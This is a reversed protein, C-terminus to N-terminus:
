KSQDGYAYSYAGVQLDIVGATNMNTVISPYYKMKQALTSANALVTNGDNMYIKLREDDTSTPSYTVQSIGQRITASLQGVQKATETLIGEHKAFGAYTIFNTLNNSIKQYKGTSLLLEQHGNHTVIGIVPNEVVHVKVSRPGVLSVRISKVQLNNQQAQKSVAAQDFVLRWIFAGAKAGSAAEVQKATLDENGVVKVQNVKSFPSVVYIMALLVIFFPILVTLARGLNSKIQYARLKPLGKKLGQHRKKFRDRGDIVSQAELTALRDAYRRHERNDRHNAM